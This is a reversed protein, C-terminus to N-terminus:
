EVFVLLGLFLSEESQTHYKHMCAPTILIHSILNLFGASKSVIIKM